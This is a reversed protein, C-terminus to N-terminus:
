RPGLAQRRGLFSGGVEKLLKACTACMELRSPPEQEWGAPLKLDLIAEELLVAPRRRLSANVQEKAQRELLHYCAARSRCSLAAREWV